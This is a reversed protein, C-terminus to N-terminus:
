AGGAKGGLPVPRGGAQESARAVEIFRVIERSEDLDIPEKGTTFMEVVANLMATYYASGAVTAAFHGKEYHATFGFGGQGDRIGRLVGYHGNAWRGTTVDGGPTAAYQVEVCGKGMLTYIIEVGHIGYNLLGPNGKHLSASGWADVSLLKGLDKQRKVAEQVEPAYRLASCSMLPACHTRALAILEDAQSSSQTFPKDVFTPLDANLFPRARELHRDGQQSEIMVADIKGLLDEPRSVLEIGYGRLQETYGPIREPMMRSDGPCGAVVKAGDVWHEKGIGVHNLRKTFEAVHSTDFDVLGVRIM